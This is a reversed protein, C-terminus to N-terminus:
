GIAVFSVSSPRALFRRTSTTIKYFNTAANILIVIFCHATDCVNHQNVCGM